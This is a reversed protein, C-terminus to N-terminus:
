AVYELFMKCLALAGAQFDSNWSYWKAGSCPSRFQAGQNPEGWPWLKDSRRGTEQRLGKCVRWDEDNLGGTM